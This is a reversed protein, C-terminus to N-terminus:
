RRRRLLMLLGLGGLLAAGPEPIQGVTFGAEDSYAWDHVMGQSGDALNYDLTVRLWGYVENAGPNLVFAIYGQEGPTFAAYAPDADLVPTDFHSDGSSQNSRGSGGFAATTLTRSTAETVIVTGMTVNLIQSRKGVPDDVFPQFTDSYAIGIGGFFFNVDWGAPQNYGVTYADTAIVPPGNPPTTITPSAALDLYVGNFTTPIPIDVVGSYIVAAPASTALLLPGVVRPPLKSLWHPIPIM